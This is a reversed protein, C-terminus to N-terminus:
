WSRPLTSGIYNQWSRERSVRASPLVRMGSLVRLGSRYMTSKPLSSLLLSALFLREQPGKWAKPAKSLSM